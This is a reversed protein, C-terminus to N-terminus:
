TGADGDLKKLAAEILWRDKADSARTLYGQYAQRAHAKDGAQVQLDGLSRWAAAPADAYATAAVYSAQAQDLDTPGRRLRLAEGRYFSLVGLDEGEGSLRAILSLTEGFDRRRLDDKLWAGLFPRIMARYAKRNQTVTGGGARPASAAMVDLSKIRESTVPHSDFISAHADQARVKPFDSAAVEATLDRWMQSPAAPDYGAAVARTFGLQDAQMENQRDYRFMSAVAGLYILDNIAGASRMIDSVQSNPYGNATPTSASASAAAGIAVAGVAMQLIMATNTRNKANRWSELSHNEAFHGIEHGLVFALQDETEARLLLGSWVEMYGNPAMSANFFPRDMVYVRLEGCYEPALKCAIRKVERNLAPDANLEASDKAEHEARDVKQWLGGEDTKPDPRLGAPRPQAAAPCSSMLPAAAVLAAAALGTLSRRM